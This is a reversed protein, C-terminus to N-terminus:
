AERVGVGERCSALGQDHDLGFGVPRIPHLKRKWGRLHDRADELFPDHRHVLWARLRPVARVLRGAPSGDRRVGQHQRADRRLVSGARGSSQRQQMLLAVTADFQKKTLEYPDKIGLSPQSKSLYLAADAITIPYDYATVLGKNSNDYVASWSTPPIKFKNTNYLLVNPGWQLSIGYHIGDITNYQPNKFYTQFNPWDTILKENMPKVDGGYILRLDADGSASVMDWQGGGGSQMLSVMEDSSGAYQAHVQCGTTQEFSKKWSDDVYGEWAILNLLGEGAGVKDLPKMSATPPVRHKSGTSTNSSGCATALLGTVLAVAVVAGFKM